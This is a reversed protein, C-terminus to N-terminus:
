AHLRELRDLQDEPLARGEDPAHHVEVRERALHARQPEAAIGLAGHAALPRRHGLQDVVLHEAPEPALAAVAGPRVTAVLRLWRAGRGRLSEGQGARPARSTSSAALVHPTRALWTLRRAATAGASRQLRCGHMAAANQCRQREWGRHIAPKGPMPNARIVLPAGAGWAETTEQVCRATSDM